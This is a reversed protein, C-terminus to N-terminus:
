MKFKLLIGCLVFFVLIAFVLLFLELRGKFSLSQFYIKLIYINHNFSFKQGYEAHYSIIEKIIKSNGKIKYSFNPISKQNNLLRLMFAYNSGMPADKLSTFTINEKETDILVDTACDFFIFCRNTKIDNATIVVDFKKIENLFINKYRINKGQKYVLILENESIIIESVYEDKDKKIKNWLAFFVIITFLIIYGLFPLFIDSALLKTGLILFLGLFPVIALIIIKSIEWFTIKRSEVKIKVLKDNIRKIISSAWVTISM